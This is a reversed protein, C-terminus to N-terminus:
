LKGRGRPGFQLGPRVHMLISVSLRTAKALHKKPLTAHRWGHQRMLRLMSVGMIKELRHGMGQMFMIVTYLMIFCIRLHCIEPAVTELLCSPNDRMGNSQNTPM